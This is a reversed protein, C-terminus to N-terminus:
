GAAGEVDPRGAFVPDALNGFHIASTPCAQACATLVEGDRLARKETGGEVEGGHPAARLVHMEGHSGQQAGDCGSEVAARAPQALRTEPYNFWNFYRVKYPCNASCYRSGVCRNYVQSNLGDPTHHTAGVPCVIECPAAECQQCMMPLFQAGQEPFEQTPSRGKEGTASSESGTCRSVRSFASAQRRRPSQKGCLLRHHLRQLGHLCRSRHGHGM